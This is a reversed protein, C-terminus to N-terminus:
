ALYKEGIKESFEKRSCGCILNGHELLHVVDSHKLAFHLNQEALIITLDLEKHMYDLIKSIEELIIPALGLTPEDMVMIKPKRVLARAIVLMQQEGGSLTGAMQKRREKLKPFISYVEDLREKLTKNDLDHMPIELNEEVSLYKFLERTEPVFAMGLNVIESTKLNHLAKGELYIEGEYKVLSLISKLLSTKGAGNLGVISVFQGRNVKLEINRLAEAKNYKLSKIKVSLIEEDSINDKKELFNSSEEGLFVRKVEPNSIVESPTGISIVKGSHIAVMRDVMNYVAKVNHDILIISFGQKEISNVIESFEKVESHNLGAFPEDLLLLKPNLALAKALEMRRIVGFPLEESHRNLFDQLAVKKALEEAKKNIDKPFKISIKDKLLAVKINELVSQRKLPRSHQFMVAIGKKIRKHIPLNQIEEGLFKIKGENPRHIGIILHMITSKGAGNPGILGLTENEEVNFSVNNTAVIGGFRKEVNILELVNM